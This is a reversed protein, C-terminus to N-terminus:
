CDRTRRCWGDSALGCCILREQKECKKSTGRYQDTRACTNSQNARTIRFACRLRESFLLTGIAGADTARRCNQSLRRSRSVKPSRASLLWGLLYYVPDLLLSKLSSFHHFFRNQDRDHERQNKKQFRLGSKYTTLWFHWSVSESLALLFSM